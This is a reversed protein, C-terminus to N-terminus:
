ETLGGDVVRRMDLYNKQRLNSRSNVMAMAFDEASTHMNDTTGEISPKEKTGGVEARVNEDLDCAVATAVEVEDRLVDDVRDINSSL